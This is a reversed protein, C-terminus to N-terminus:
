GDGILQRLEEATLEDYASRISSSHNINHNEQNLGLMRALSDASKQKDSIEPPVERVDGEVIKHNPLKGRMVSTHFQLIEAGDAIKLGAIRENFENRISEVIPPIHQFKDTGSLIKNATNRASKESYGAQRAAEAGNDFGGAIYALIFARQKQRAPPWDAMLRLAKNQLEIILEKEKADM